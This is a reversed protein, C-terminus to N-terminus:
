GLFSGCSQSLTLASLNPLLLLLRARPPLLLLLLLLPPTTTSPLAVGMSSSAAASAPAFLAAGARLWLCDGFIGEGTTSAISVTHSRKKASTLLKQERV